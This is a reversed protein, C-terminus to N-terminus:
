ISAIRTLHVRLIAGDAILSPEPRSGGRRLFASRAPKNNAILVPSLDIIFFSKALVIIAEIIPVAASACGLWLWCPACAPTAPVLSVVLFVALDFPPIVVPVDELVVSLEPM